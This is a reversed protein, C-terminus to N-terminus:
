IELAHQAHEVGEAGRGQELLVWALDEETEAIRPDTPGFGQTAALAMRFRNEAEAFKGVRMAKLGDNHVAEWQMPMAKRKAAAQGFAWGPLILVPILIAVGLDLVGRVRSPDSHDELSRHHTMM